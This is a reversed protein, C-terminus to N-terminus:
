VEKGIEINSEVLGSAYLRLNAAAGTAGMEDFANAAQIVAAKDRSAMAKRFVARRAEKVEAPAAALAARKELMDAQVTMGQVRFATALERLKSPDKVSNIATDFIAERNAMISPHMNAKARDQASRKWLAGAALAAFISLEVLM